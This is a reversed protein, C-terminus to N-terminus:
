VNKNAFNEYKSSESSYVCAKEIVTKYSGANNRNACATAELSNLIAYGATESESFTCVEKGNIYLATSQGKKYIAVTFTIKGDVVVGEDAVNFLSIGYKEVGNFRAYLVVDKSENMEINYWSNDSGNFALALIRTWGNERYSEVKVSAEFLYDSYVNYINGFRYKSEGGDANELTVSEWELLTKEEFSEYELDTSPVFYVNSFGISYSGGERWSADTATTIELTKLEKWGHYDEFGQMDTENYGCVLKGNVFLFTSIGKKLIKVTYSIIGDVTIDNVNFLYIGYKEVGNFKGYLNFNGSGDIEINYWCNDWGNFAFSSVRTYGTDYENVTVTASFLYDDGMVKNIEGFSYKLEAGDSESLTKNFFKVGNSYSKYEDSDETLYYMNSLEVLYKGADTRNALATVEPSGLTAYGNMEEETYYCVLNDNVYFRTAQGKKYLAVNFVISGGVLVEEKDFLKIHYKEIGNFRGYLIIEGSEALEVNYWSNDSNNFAFACLRTFTRYEKVEVRTKIVYNESDPTPIAFKSENGSVDTLLATIYTVDVKFTTSHRLTEASVITTTNPILGKIKGDKIEIANGEFSYIVDEEYEENSFVPILIKEQTFSLSLDAITLTGYDAGVSVTFATKTKGIRATVLTQTNEILGTVKGDSIVINEGEFSFTPKEDSGNVTYVIEVTEGFGVQIDEVSLNVKKASDKCGFLGMIAIIGILLLITTMLKRKM